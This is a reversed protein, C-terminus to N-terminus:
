ENPKSPPPPPPATTLSWKVTVTNTVNNVSDADPSSTDSGSLNMGIATAPQKYSKLERGDLEAPTSPSGMGSPSPCAATVEYSMKGQNDRVFEVAILGPGQIIGRTTTGQDIQTVNGSCTAQGKTVAVTLQEIYRSKPAALEVHRSVTGSYAGAYNCPVVVPVCTPASGAQASLMVPAALLAATLGCARLGRPEYFRRRRVSKPDTSAHPVAFRDENPHM